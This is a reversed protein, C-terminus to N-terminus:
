RHSHSVARPLAQTVYKYITDLCINGLPFFGHVHFSAATMPIRYQGQYPPIRLLSRHPFHLLSRHPIQLSVWEHSFYCISIFLSPPSPFAIGCNTYGTTHLLFGFSYTSHTLLSRGSHLSIYECAFLTKINVSVTAISIPYQGQYSGADFSVYKCLPFISAYSFLSRHYDHRVVRPVAHPICFIRPIHYFLGVSTSPSKNIHLFATTIPIRYRGQYVM